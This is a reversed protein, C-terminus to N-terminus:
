VQHSTRNWRWTNAWWCLGRNSCRRSCPHIQPSLVSPLSYLLCSQLHQVHVAPNYGLAQLHPSSTSVRAPSLTQTSTAFLLCQPDPMATLLFSPISARVQPHQHGPQIRPEPCRLSPSQPPSAMLPALAQSTGALSVQHGSGLLAAGDPALGSGHSLSLPGGNVAANWLVNLFNWHFARLRWFGWTECCCQEEGTGLRAAPRWRVLWPSSGGSGAGCRVGRHRKERASTNSNGRAGRRCVRGQSQDQGQHSEAASPSVQWQTKGHSTVSDAPVAPMWKRHSLGEAEPGTKGRPGDKVHRALLRAQPGEAAVCHGHWCLQQSVHKHTQLPTWCPRCAYIHEKNMGPVNEQWVSEQLWIIKTRLSSPLGLRLHPFEGPETNQLASHTERRLTVTYRARDQRALPHPFLTLWRHKSKHVADLVASILHLRIARSLAAKAAAQWWSLGTDGRPGPEKRERTFTAGGGAGRASSGIQPKDCAEEGLVWASNVEAARAYSVGSAFAAPVCQPTWLETNNCATLTDCM